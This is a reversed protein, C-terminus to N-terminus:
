LQLAFRSALSPDTKIGEELESPTLYDIGSHVRKENYVEEIFTPLNELVDLYTEYNALYVEEQKLTKMFSEVFANHYPNGKASNSILLGHANLLAVYDNCLYQVGRDSHHICGPPPERMAIAQRLASLALEADIHRSIAWGIVRRSFLDLIVALYVFGNGIRIYTLDAAWVQNIGTLRCGPLRNPYVRHAHKSDTTHVFARKIEAHLSFQKMVRRIRREGVLRGRRRLYCQVTRYGARPFDAQVAEIADRLSADERERVERSRVPRYYYTSPSLGIM